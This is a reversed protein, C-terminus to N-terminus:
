GEGPGEPVPLPSTITRFVLAALALDCCAMGQVIALVVDSPSARGPRLGAVVQGLEATLRAEITAQTTGGRIWAGVSGMVSAFGFDDVVFRDAARLASADIEHGGGMGVITRGAAMHRAFLLPATASTIAIVADAGAVAEDVSAAAEIGHREAFAQAREPRSAAVRIATAGVRDRLPAVLWEAIRGAGLLAVTRCPVLDAPGRLAELAVVGTLATRVAHLTNMEVLGIPRATQFDALWMVDHSVEGEPTDHDGVIRVGSLGLGPLQAAKVKIATHPAEPHHMLLAPPTSLVPPRTAAQHFADRVAEYARDLDLAALATADDVYPLTM